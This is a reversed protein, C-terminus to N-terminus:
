KTVEYAYSGYIDSAVAGCRIGIKFKEGPPIEQDIKLIGIKNQSLPATAGATEEQTDLVYDDIELIRETGIWGEVVNGEYASVNILVEKITKPEGVTSTLGEDLTTTNLVGNVQMQKYYM